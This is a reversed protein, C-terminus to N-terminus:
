ISGSININMANVYFIHLFIVKPFNDRRVQCLKEHM